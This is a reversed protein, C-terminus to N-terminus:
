VITFERIPLSDVYRDLVDRISLSPGPSAYGKDYTFSIQGVRRYQGNATPLLLLGFVMYRRGIDGDWMLVFALVDGSHVESSEDTWNFDRVIYCHNHQGVVQYEQSLEPLEFQTVHPFTVDFTVSVLSAPGKVTISANSAHGFHSPGTIEYNTVLAASTLVSCSSFWWIKGYVSIWSWTPQEPGPRPETQDLPRWSLDKLLNNQWMGAIYVDNKRTDQMRKVLASIAPLRDCEYTLYLSSYHLVETRWASIPDNVKVRFPPYPRHDDLPQLDEVGDESLVASDCEWFLQEKGFHIIRASLKREQFVWARDLLPWDRYRLGGPASPFRPFSPSAMRVFLGSEELPVAKYKDQMKSFCGRESSNSWAAALTVIAGTYIEAM